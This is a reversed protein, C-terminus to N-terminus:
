HKWLNPNRSLHFVAIVIVTNEAIFYFIGYPFRPILICRLKNYKAQFLFPNREITRLASELSLVFEYGLGTRQQEYWNYAESIHTEARKRIILRYRM